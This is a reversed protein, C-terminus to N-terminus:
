RNEKAIFLNIPFIVDVIFIGELQSQVLLNQCLCLWSTLIGADSSVDVRNMIGDAGREVVSHVRSSLFVQSSCHQGSGVM